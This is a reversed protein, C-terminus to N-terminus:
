VAVPPEVLDAAPLVAAAARHRGGAVGVVQLGGVRLDEVADALAPLQVVFQGFAQDVAFIYATILSVAVLVVLSYSFLERRSPWAVRRM